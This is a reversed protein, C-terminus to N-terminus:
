LIEEYMTAFVSTKRGKKNTTDMSKETGTYQITPRLGDGEAKAKKMKMTQSMKSMALERTINKLASDGSKMDPFEMIQVTSPANKKNEPYKIGFSLIGLYQIKM